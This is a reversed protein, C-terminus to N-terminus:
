ATTGASFARRICHGREASRPSAESIRSRNGSSTGYYVASMIVFIRERIANQVIKTAARGLARAASTGVGVASVTTEDAMFAAADPLLTTSISNPADHHVHHLLKSANTCAGSTRCIM